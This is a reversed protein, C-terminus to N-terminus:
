EASRLKLWGLLAEYVDHVINAGGGILLGSLVKGVWETVFLGSFPDFTLLLGLPVGGILALMGVVWGPLWPFIQRVLEGLRLSIREVLFALAGLVILYQSFAVFIELVREVTM